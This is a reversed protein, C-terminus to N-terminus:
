ESDPISLVRLVEGGMKAQALIDCLVRIVTADDMDTAEQYEQIVEVMTGSDM